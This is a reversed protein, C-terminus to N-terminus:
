SSGCDFGPNEWRRGGGSAKRKRGEEEWGFGQGLELGLFTGSPSRARKVVSIHLSIFLIRTSLGLDSVSDGPCSSSCGAWVALIRRENFQDTNQAGPLLLLWEKCKWLAKIDMIGLPLLPTGMTCLFFSHRLLTFSQGFTVWRITFSGLASAARQVQGDRNAAMMSPEGTLTIWLSEISHVPAWTWYISSGLHWCQVKLLNIQFCM